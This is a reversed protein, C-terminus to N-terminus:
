PIGPPKGPDSPDRPPYEDNDINACRCVECRREEDWACELDTLCVIWKSEACREGMGTSGSQYRYARKPGYNRASVCAALALVGLVLLLASRSRM